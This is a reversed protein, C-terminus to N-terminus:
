LIGLMYLESYVYEWIGLPLDLKLTVCTYMYLAAVCSSSGCICTSLSGYGLVSLCVNLVSECIYMDQTMLVYQGSEWMGPWCVLGM